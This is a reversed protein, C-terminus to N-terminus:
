VALISYQMTLMRFRLSLASGHHIPDEALTVMAV